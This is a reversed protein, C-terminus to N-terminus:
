HYAQHEKQGGVSKLAGPAKGPLTARRHVEVEFSLVRRGGVVLFRVRAVIGNGM